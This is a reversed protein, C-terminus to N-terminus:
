DIDLRYIEGSMGSPGFNKSVLMYVNGNSDRGFSKIYRDMKETELLKWQGNQEIIRMIEGGFDGFLYSGNVYYGGIVASTGGSRTNYEYIPDILGEKKKQDETAWPTFVTGEKINWGYNGGKTVIYISEKTEFGADTVFFRGSPDFSLGWPNRLGYAYIENLAGGTNFFPNDSPIQYYKPFKGPKSVDIRLIKGFPVSLDQAHNEPDKQPGGDGIGLYLYRDPGFAIKGGNHYDLDRGLRFMIKEQDYLIRGNEYKFESLCNYYKIKPTQEYRGSSYFIFFRGKNISDSNYEPHFALGLLGREDYAPNLKPIYKTVDLFLKHTHTNINTQYIKGIQDVVYVHDPEGPAYELGVPSVTGDYLLTAKITNHPINGESETDVLIVKGGMKPHIQCQYYFNTPLGDRVKFKTIGEDTVTEGPGMLSGKDGDAGVSDTTFYFPHGPTRVDFIYTKGKVLKLTMGEQNNFVYSIGSGDQYYPHGSKKKAVTVKVTTM